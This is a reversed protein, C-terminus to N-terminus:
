VPSPAALHPALWGAAVFGALFGGLHAEWALAGGAFAVYLLINIAILGVITGWFRRPSTGTARIYRWEWRKFAGFIGFVVGSAGVMPVGSRAILAFVVAAGVATILFFIIFKAPGLVNALMGGLGLFIVGNMILHFVDGHLFAYTVFSLWFNWPIGGQPYYEYLWPNDAPLTGTLLADFFVDFFALYAYVDLRLHEFPLIGAAALEFTLEFAIMVGAMAWIVPPPAPPRQRLPSIPQRM